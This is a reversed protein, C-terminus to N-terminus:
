ATQFFLVESTNPYRHVRVTGGGSLITRHGGGNFEEKTLLQKQVKRATGCCSLGCRTVQVGNHVVPLMDHADGGMVEVDSDEEMEEDLRDENHDEEEEVAVNRSCQQCEEDSLPM